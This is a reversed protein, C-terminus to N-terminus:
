GKKYPDVYVDDITWTGGIGGATFRFSVEDDVLNALVPMPASPAWEGGGLLGAVVGVPLALGGHTVVEVTLTGLLGGGNRVFFRTTPHALSVCLPPTTARDGARLRLARPTDGGHVYWPENDAVLDAGDLDWGAAGATFDGDGVLTYHATDGWRAFPQELEQGECAYAPAAAFLIALVMACAIPLRFTKSSGAMPVTRRDDTLAGDPRGGAVKLAPTPFM